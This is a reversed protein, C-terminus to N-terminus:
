RPQSRRDGRDTQNRGTGGDRRGKRVGMEVDEGRINTQEEEHPVRLKGTVLYVDLPINLTDLGLDHVDHFSVGM